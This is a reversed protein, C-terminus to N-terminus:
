VNAVQEELWEWLQKGLVPDLADPRPSGIRAWPILYKGNFEAGEKSTGGWLQTFAGYHPPALIWNLVWQEFRSAHRHLDSNLMGPHVAMSVVGQDGYRKGLESAFVVNGYKSQSYLKLTSLKRRAQGDKFAHFNLSGLLHLMSSTTVVRVHKEPSARATSTLTPLLLKTLYFHGLVNTGMQLDYGDVTLQDLPPMMVGGNNFLIHLEKEKEQFELAAAKVSKLDALDLKLFIAEKGTQAQLDEIAAQAKDAFVCATLTASGLSGGGPVSSPVSRLPRKGWGGTLL